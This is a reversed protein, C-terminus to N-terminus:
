GPSIGDEQKQKVHTRPRKATNNIYEVGFTATNRGVYYGTTYRNRRKLAKKKEREIRGWIPQAAKKNKNGCCGENKMLVATSTKSEKKGSVEM